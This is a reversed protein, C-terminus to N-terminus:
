HTCSNTAGSGTGMPQADVNCATATTERGVFGLVFTWRPGSTSAISILLHHDPTHDFATTSDMGTVSILCNGTALDTTIAFQYNDSIGNAPSDIAPLTCPVATGNVPPVPIIAVYPDCLPRLVNNMAALTCDVVIDQHSLPQALGCALQSAVDPMGVCTDACVGAIECTAPVCGQGDICAGLSCDGHDTVICARGKTDASCASGATCYSLDQCDLHGTVADCDNDDARVVAITGPGSRSRNYRLCGPESGDGWLEVRAPDFAELEIAYEFLKDTPVVYDFLEGVGVPTSGAFAVVAVYKGGSPQAEAPLFYDLRKAKAGLDYRDAPSFQRTFRKGPPPPTPIAATAPTRPIVTANGSGFYLEVHDFALGAKGGEIALYAGQRSSCGAVLVLAVVAIRMGIM